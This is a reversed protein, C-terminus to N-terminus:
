VCFFSIIIIVDIKIIKDNVFINSIKNIMRADRLINVCSCCASWFDYFFDLWGKFILLQLHEVLAHCYTQLYMVYNGTM